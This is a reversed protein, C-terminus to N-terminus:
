ENPSIEAAEGKSKYLVTDVFLALDEADEFGIVPDYLLDRGTVPVLKGGEDKRAYPAFLDAVKRMGEDESIEANRLGNYERVLDM